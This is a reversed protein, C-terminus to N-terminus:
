PRTMNAPKWGTDMQFEADISRKSVTSKAAPKTAPKQSDSESAFGSASSHFEEFSDAFPNEDASFNNEAPAKARSLTSGGATTKQRPIL